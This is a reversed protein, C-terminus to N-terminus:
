KKVGIQDNKKNKFIYMYVSGGLFRKKEVVELGSGAFVEDWNRMAFHGHRVMEKPQMWLGYKKRLDDTPMGSALVLVLGNPRCVRRMEAIAKRPNSVYELGFTDVVTDFSNDGFSM